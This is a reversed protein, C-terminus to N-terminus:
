CVEEWYHLGAEEAEELAADKSMRIGIGSGDGTIVSLIMVGISAWVWWKKWFPTKKTIM